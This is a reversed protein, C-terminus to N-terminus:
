CPQSSRFNRRFCQDPGITKFPICVTRSARLATSIPMSPIMTELWPPLCTSPQMAENSTSGSIASATPSSISTMKSEPTRDPVSTKFANARPALITHIPRGYTYPSASEPSSPTLCTKFLMNPSRSRLKCRDPTGLTLLPSRLLSM